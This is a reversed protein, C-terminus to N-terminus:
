IKLQLLFHSSSKINYSTSMDKFGIYMAPVTTSSLLSSVVEKNKMQVLKNVLDIPKDEYKKLIRVIIFVANSLIM